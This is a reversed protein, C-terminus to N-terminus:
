FFKKNLFSIGSNLLFSIWNKFLVIEKFVNKLNFLNYQVIRSFFFSSFFIFLGIWLYGFNFSFRYFYYYLGYVFIINVWLCWYVGTRYIQRNRSYRSKNFSKNKRLFFILNDNNSLKLFFTNFFQFRLFLQKKLFNANFKVFATLPKMKKFFINYTYYLYNVKKFFKFSMKQRKISKIVLNLKDKLVDNIFINKFFAFIFINKLYQATVFFINKNNINLFDMLIVINKLDFTESKYYNKLNNPCIIDNYVARFMKLNIFFIFIWVFFM